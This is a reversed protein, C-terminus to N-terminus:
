VVNVLPLLGIQFWNPCSRMPQDNDVYLGGLGQIRHNLGILSDGPWFRVAGDVTSPSPTRMMRSAAGARREDSTTAASTSTSIPPAIPQNAQHDGNDCVAAGVGAAAPVPVAGM